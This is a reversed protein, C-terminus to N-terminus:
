AEIEPNPAPPGAAISPPKSMMAWPALPIMLTVPSGPPGGAFAPTGIVSM